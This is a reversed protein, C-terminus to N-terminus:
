FRVGHVETVDVQSVLLGTLLSMIEKYFVSIFRAHSYENFILFKELVSPRHFSRLATLFLM